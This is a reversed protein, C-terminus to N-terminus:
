LPWGGSSHTLQPRAELHQKSHMVKGTGPVTDVKHEAEAAQPWKLPRSEGTGRMKPSWGGLAPQRAAISVAALEGSGEFERLKTQRKFNRRSRQSVHYDKILTPARRNGATSITM